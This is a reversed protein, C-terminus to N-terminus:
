AAVKSRSAGVRAFVRAATKALILMDGMLTRDRVYERYLKLKQPLIVDVYFRESDTARSLLSEEDIFSLSGPDTIGPPISLVIRRDEESWQRVYHPVEPRPGVLSMEGKLVNVLQPLEDLKYRRLVRGSPTIRKDGTATVQAGQGAANPVMSRFKYIVFPAGHRGVREQKFIIPGPSDKRIWLAVVAMLPSFVVLLM